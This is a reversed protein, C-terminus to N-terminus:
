TGKLFTVMGSERLSYYDNEQQPRAQGLIVHDLVPIGVIHGADVLQRTVRLDEPSPVIDGSPHNHALIVAASSTHIARRFVERPHVLSADLLGRSIEQPAAKLRNRANLLLIWFVEEALGKARDRLVQAVEAPTRVQVEAPISERVMRMGLELASKVVQAKVRGMGPIAALEELPSEALATLSGYHHHLLRRSLEIVNLGKIGNRLIIALLVEDSVYKVGLRDLEERPRLRDPVDRLRLTETMSPYSQIKM